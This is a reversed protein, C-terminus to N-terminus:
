FCGGDCILTEDRLLDQAVFIVYMCLMAYGLEHTLAWGCLKITVIVTVLMFLLVFISLQLSKAAVTVVEGKIINYCLWPFPLGVLVDFINSGISSSVAMDGKGKPAVVTSM